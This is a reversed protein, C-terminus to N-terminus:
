RNREEAPMRVVRLRDRAKVTVQRSPDQYKTEPRRRMTLSIAAVIGVLLIAGIFSMISFTTGTVVLAAVLGIICFPVSFMIILPHLLSEFQSALVMYVLLLALGLADVEARTREFDGYGAMAKQDDKPIFGMSNNVVAQELPGAAFFLWRYYNARDEPAPALGADPFADALYACIAACETVTKGDHVIAPVKAMPNVAVLPGPRLRYESFMPRAMMISVGITITFMWRWPGYCPMM